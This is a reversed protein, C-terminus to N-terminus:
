KNVSNITKIIGEAIGKAIKERVKEDNLNERDEDNTIFATEVLVAPILNKKLVYLTSGDRVGKDVFETNSIVNSLINNSLTKPNIKSDYESNQDYFVMSGKTEPSNEMANCHISVFICAGSNISKEVRDALAVYTDTSRTMVVDLGEKELYSKVRKAIDLNIPAEKIEFEGDENKYSAGIDTGGHGADIVVKNLSIKVPAKKKEKSTNFSPNSADKAASIRIIAESETLGVSVDPQNEVDLVFRAMDEHNAYRVNNVFNGSINTQTGSATIVAGYFDLVVREPNSMRTIKPEIGKQMSLYIVDNSSSKEQKVSTIKTKNETSITIPKTTSIPSIEKKEKINVSFTEDIWDVIFGLNESIIRVPVMTKDNIIIPPMENDDIYIFKKDNIKIKREGLTLTIKNGNYSIVVQQTIDKWTVIAGLSEFVERVPVLTRGNLLIAPMEKLVVEKDNVMIGIAGRNYDETKGNYTIDFAKVSITLSLLFTILIFFSVSKRM